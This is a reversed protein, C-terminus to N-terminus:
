LKMISVVPSLFLHPSVLGSGDVEAAVIVLVPRWGARLGLGAEGCRHSSEQRVPFSTKRELLM